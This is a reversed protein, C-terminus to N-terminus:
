LAVEKETAITLVEDDMLRQALGLTKPVEYAFFFKMTHIKSEYFELEEGKPNETLLIQKAVTAQKLWQWAIAITGFMEMYLNADSLFLEINGKMAIGVLKMTVSQLVQMKEELIKVYKNLEPYTKAAELDKQIEAFLLKVAKGQKMTVKRGLLDMSQIGTTGEYLPYIRIDRYYNELPFDKCFGSGGLVQLGNSVSVIGMESPYTKVVPTLIELLLEYKEKEEEGAVRSLDWYKACEAVLSLSGEMISKQLLLMRKVDPHHIITTQPKTLDRDNLRRGQPRENAYELSAYYAASAISAGGLGVMIRAENMMQFMYSLGKNEEGVLYGICDDKEGFMLHLAPTGKQGLKHYVGAPTVDNHTFSGDAEIRYKPVIFLSIGKTGMPAGEVRALVMHVVNEVADFDGGSIFIKQGTIKYANDGIPKASTTIDSLSSGAQPETLAMTGQWKGGFMNPLYAEKYEDKAFAMILNAAGATLGTFGMAGNNAASMIFGIAVSLTYPMQMGGYEFPAAAGIYGGEAMAELLPKVSHHVKVEGDVLKPENRDMDEYFPFLYTDSFQKAADIMMNISDEDYEKFQEYHSMEHAQHVRNMTFKVNRLSVYKSAM